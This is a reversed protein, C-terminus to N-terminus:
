IPHMESSFCTLFRYFSPTKWPKEMVPAFSLYRLATGSTPVSPARPAPKRRPSTRVWRRLGFRRLRARLTHLTCSGRTVRLTGSREGMPSLDPVSRSAHAALWGAGPGCGAPTGPATPAGRRERAFPKSSAFLAFRSPLVM